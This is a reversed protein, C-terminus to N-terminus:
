TGGGWVCVHRGNPRTTLVTETHQSSDTDVATGSRALAADLVQCEKTLAECLWLFIGPDLHLVPVIVNELPLPLIVPRICNNFKKADALKLGAAIFATHDRGLSELTRHDAKEGALQMERRTLTCHLCPHLGSSGSLGFLTSQLGYNGFLVVKVKKGQWLTM